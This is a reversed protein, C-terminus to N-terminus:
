ASPAPRGDLRPGTLALVGRPDDSYLLLLAREALVIDQLYRDGADSAATGAALYWDRAKGFQSAGEGIVGVVQSVMAAAGVLRVQHGTPQRQELLARISRLAAFAPKVLTAPVITALDIQVGLNEAASELHTVREESATGRDLTIHILDLERDLSDPAPGTLM